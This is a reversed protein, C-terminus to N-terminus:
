PLLDAVAIQVNPLALPAVLDGASLTTRQDFRFGFRENVDALPNRYVELQSGVLNVIWYDAIGSAAYLSGKPGRDYGLTTDSVEVILLATTPNVNPNHTRFNGIVVALDPDPTSHPRLDLSAQVRVWFGTGFANELAVETAKIAMAHFNKQAPMELIEGGILEVRHGEFWGLDLIRYYEERSFHRLAPELHDGNGYQDWIEGGLLEVKQGEFWGWESMQYYQERTFLFPKPTKEHQLGVANM